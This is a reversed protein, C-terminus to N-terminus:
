KTKYNVHTVVIQDKFHDWLIEFHTIYCKDITGINKKIKTILTQTIKEMDNDNVDAEMRERTWKTDNFYMNSLTEIKVNRATTEVKTTFM